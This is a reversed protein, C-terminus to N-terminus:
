FGLRSMLQQGEKRDEIEKEKDKFGLKELEDVIEQKELPKDTDTDYIFHSGDELSTDVFPFESTELIAIVDKPDGWVDFSIMWNEMFDNRSVTFASGQEQVEPEEDPVHVQNYNENLISEFVTLESGSIYKSPNEYIVEIFYEKAQQEWASCNSYCINEVYDRVSSDDIRCKDFSYYDEVVFDEKHYNKDIGDMNITMEVNVLCGEYTSKGDDMNQIDVTGVVKIPSIM